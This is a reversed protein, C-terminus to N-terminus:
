NKKRPTEPAPVAGPMQPMPTQTASSLRGLLRSSFQHWGASGPAPSEPTAASAVAADTGSDGKTSSSKDIKLTRLLKLV